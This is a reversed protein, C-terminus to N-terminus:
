GGGRPVALALSPNFSTKRTLRRTPWERQVPVDRDQAPVGSALDDQGIALDGLTMGPDGALVVAEVDFVEPADIPGHNTVPVQGPHMAQLVAVEDLNAAGQEGVGLAIRGDAAGSSCAPM